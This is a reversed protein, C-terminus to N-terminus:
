LQGTFLRKIWDFIRKFFDIIKQFFNKQEEEQKITKECIDCINNGDADIHADPDVPVIVKEPNEQNCRSCKYTKEGEYTCNSPKESVLISYDHGLKTGEEEESTRFSCQDDECQYEIKGNATCTPAIKQDSEVMVHLNCDQLMPYAYGHCSGSGPSWWLEDFDWGDFATESKMDAATVGNEGVAICNEAAVPAVPYSSSIYNQGCGRDSANYCYSIAVNGSVAAAVGSCDTNCTLSGANGCYEITNDNGVVTGVIGAVGSSTGDAQSGVSTHIAGNNLCHSVVSNELSGVIGAINKQSGGDIEALNICRRVTSNEAKGVIGGGVPGYNLTVSCDNVCDEVISGNVIVGAIGGAAEGADIVCNETRVNSITTSDAFGVVAGVYKLFDYEDTATDYQADKIIVDKITAGRTYGFLGLGSEMAPARFGSITFGRGDFTGCFPDDQTGIPLLGDMEIDCGLAIFKDAYASFNDVVEFYGDGDSIVYPDQQTGAGPLAPDAAFAVSVMATLLFLCLIVSLVKSFRRKM